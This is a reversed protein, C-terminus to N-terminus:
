EARECVYRQIKDDHGLYERVLRGQDNMYLTMQKAEGLGLTVIARSEVCNFPVTLAEGNSIIDLLHMGYKSRVNFSMSDNSGEVLEGASNEELCNAKYSGSIVNCNAVVSCSLLALILIQRM